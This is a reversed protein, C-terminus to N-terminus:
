AAATAPATGPLANAERRAATLLLGGAILVLLTISFYNTSALHHFRDFRAQDIGRSVTIAPTIWAIQVVALVAALTTFILSATKRPSSQMWRWAVILVLTIGALGLQYREFVHFLIPAADVAVARHMAFLSSVFIALAVLGGLWLSIALALLKIVLTRM